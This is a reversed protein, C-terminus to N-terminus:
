ACHRQTNRCQEGGGQWWGGEKPVWRTSATKQRGGRRAAWRGTQRCRSDARGGAQQGARRSARGGARGGVASRGGAGKPGQGGEEKSCIRFDTSLPSLGCTGAKSSRGPGSLASNALSSSYMWSMFHTHPHAPPSQAHIHTCQLQQAPPCTPLGAISPGGARHTSPCEPPQAPTRNPLCPQPNCRMFTGPIAQSLLVHLQSQASAGVPLRFLAGGLWRGM